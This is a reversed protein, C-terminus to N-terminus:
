FEVTALVLDVLIMMDTKYNKIHLIYLYTIYHIIYM